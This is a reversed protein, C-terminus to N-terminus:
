QPAPTSHCSHPAGGPANPLWKAVDCKTCAGLALAVAFVIAVSVTRRVAPGMNEFVIGSVKRGSFGAFKSGPM